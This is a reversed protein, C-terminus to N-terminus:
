SLVIPFSYLVQAARQYVLVYLILWTVGLYCCKNYYYQKRFSRGFSPRYFGFCKPADFFLLHNNIAVHATQQILYQM